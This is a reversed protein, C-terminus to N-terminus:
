DDLWNEILSKELSAQEETSLNEHIERFRELAPSYGKHASRQYLEAAKLPNVKYFYGREYCEGLTFLSKFHGAKATKELLPVAKDYEGADYFGRAKTYKRSGGNSLAMWGKSRSLKWVTWTLLWILFGVVWFGPNMLGMGSAWYMLSVFIVGPAFMVYFRRFAEHREATYFCLAVLFIALVDLGLGTMTGTGMWNSLRVWVMKIGLFPAVFLAAWVIPYNRIYRLHIRFFGPVYSSLAASGIKKAFRTTQRAKSM